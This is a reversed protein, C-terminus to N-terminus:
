DTRSDALRMVADNFTASFFLTQRKRGEHPTQYAAIRRVDPIFGMDLMRDAEDIVLCEVKSLNVDRRDLFDILRGPTAVLVDVPGKALEARQDDFDMGGIVICVTRMDMYKALGKSDGEIQM